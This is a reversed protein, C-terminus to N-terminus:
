EDDDAVITLWTGEPMCLRVMTPTGDPLRYVTANDAFVETIDDVFAGDLETIYVLESGLQESQLFGIRSVGDTMDVRSPGITSENEVLFGASEAWQRAVAVDPVRVLLVDFYGLVQNQTKDPRLTLQADRHHLFIQQGGPVPVVVNSRDSADVPVGKDRCRQLVRDLSATFCALSPSNFEEELLTVFLQGDTMRIASRSGGETPTIGSFGLTTWAEASAEADQTSIVVASSHGFLAMPALLVSFGGHM